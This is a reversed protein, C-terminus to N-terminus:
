IEVTFIVGYFHIAKVNTFRKGCLFKIDSTGYRYNVINRSEKLNKQNLNILNANVFGHNM